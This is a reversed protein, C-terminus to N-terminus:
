VYGDAYAGGRGIVIVGLLALVVPVQGPHPM